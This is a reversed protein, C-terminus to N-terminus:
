AWMVAERRAAKAAKRASWSRRARKLSVGAGTPGLRRGGEAAGGVSVEMAEEAEEVEEAVGPPLVAAAGGDDAEGAAEERTARWVTFRGDDACARASRALPPQAALLRGVPVYGQCVIYLTGGPRLHAAAGSVLSQLPLPHMHVHM